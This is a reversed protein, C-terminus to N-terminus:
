EGTVGLYSLSIIATVTCDNVEGIKAMLREYSGRDVVRDPTGIYGARGCENTEVNYHYCYIKDPVVPAPPAAYLPYVHDYDDPNCEGKHFLDCYRGEFHMKKHSGAWFDNSVAYAVPESDARCCEQLEVAQRSNRELADSLRKSLARNDSKINQIEFIGGPVEKCFERLKRLLQVIDVGAYLSIEKNNTVYDILWNIREDTLKNNMAAVDGELQTAPVEECNNFGSGGGIQPVCNACIGCEKNSM